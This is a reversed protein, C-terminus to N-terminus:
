SNPICEYTYELAVTYYSVDDETSSSTLYVLSRSRLLTRYAHRLSDRGRQIPTDKHYSILVFNYYKLLMSRTLPQEVRRCRGSRM